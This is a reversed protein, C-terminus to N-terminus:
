SVKGEAPRRIEQSETIEGQEERKKRGLRECWEEASVITGDVIGSVQAVIDLGEKALVLAKNAGNLSESEADSKGTGDTNSSQSALHFRAPLSTLHKRVLDSANEPLAGVTFFRIQETVQRIVKVVESRLGAVQKDLETREAESRLVLQGKQQNEANGTGAIAPATNQEFGELVRKLADVVNGLRENAWKLFGLVYKLRNLSEESMAVGLGSTTLVLRSSWSGPSTPEDSRTPVLAQEYPPSRDDDYAPLSNTSVQSPTRQRTPLHQGNLFYSDTPLNRNMEEVADQGVRRRKNRGSDPEIESPNHHSPRRGGLFWRVGGEVGIKRGVTGATNVVPTSIREVYEAGTKFRPSYNKSASYLSISGRIPKGIVPYSTTLLSLM